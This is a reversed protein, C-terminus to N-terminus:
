KKKKNKNAINTPNKKKHEGKLVPIIDWRKALLALSVVCIIIGIITIVRTGRSGTNPLYLGPYNLWLSDFTYNGEMYSDDDWDAEEINLFTRTYEYGYPFTSEMVLYEQKTVGGISAEGNDDVWVNDYIKFLRIWKGDESPISYYGANGLELKAQELGDVDDVDFKDVFVYVQFEASGLRKATKLITDGDNKDAVEEGSCLTFYIGYSYAKADTENYGYLSDDLPSASYNYRVRQEFIGTRSTKSNKIVEYTITANSAEVDSISLIMARSLKEKILKEDPTVGSLATGDVGYFNSSSDQIYIVQSDENMYLIANEYEALEYSLGSVNLSETVYDLAEPITILISLNRANDQYMETFTPSFVNSSVRLKDGKNALAAGDTDVGRDEEMNMVFTQIEAESYLEKSYSLLSPEEGISVLRAYYVRSMGKPLVIYLGDELEDNYYTNGTHITVPLSLRNYSDREVGKVLGNCFHNREDESMSLLAEPTLDGWEESKGELWQVVGDQFSLNGTEDSSTIRYYEVIDSDLVGTLTFNINEEAQVSVTYGLVCIALALCFKVVKKM